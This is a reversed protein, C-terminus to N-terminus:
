IIISADEEAIIRTNKRYYYHSYTYRITGYLYVSVFVCLLAMSSYQKIDYYYLAWSISAILNLANGIIMKMNIMLITAIVSLAALIWSLDEYSVM